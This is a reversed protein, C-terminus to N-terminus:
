NMFEELMGDVDVGYREIGRLLDWMADKEFRKYGDSTIGFNQRIKEPRIGSMRMAIIQSGKNNLPMSEIATDIAQIMSEIEGKSYDTTAPLNYMLGYGDQHLQYYWRYFPHDDKKPKSNLTERRIVNSLVPDKGGRYFDTRRDIYYDAKQKLIHKKNRLKREAKAAIARIRERSLGQKQGIAEYTWEEQDDFGYHLKIVEQEQQSLSGSIWEKVASQFENRLATDEPGDIKSEISDGLVMDGDDQGITRDLSDLDRSADILFQVQSPKIRMCAAIEHISPLRCLESQLEEKCKKLAGIERIAGSSIRICRGANYLFRLIKQRIWEVAYGSFQFGLSVDFKDIATLLGICGEQYLDDYDIATKGECIRAYKGAVMRVLGTNQEFLQDRLEETRSIAYLKFLDDNSM